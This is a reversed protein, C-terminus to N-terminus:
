PADAQDRADLDPSQRTVAVVAAHRVEVDPDTRALMMLKRSARRSGLRRLEAVATARVAPVDDDLASEIARSADPHKMRSLAEISARRVIPSAHRLGQAVDGIRRAPLGALAAILTARQAPEATLAVLARTASAADGGDHSAIAALAAIAANVVNQDADAAATWQLTSAADGGGRCGIASVAELRRWTEPARLLGELVPKAADSRTHGLARIAARAIDSDQSATLPQLTPVADPADLRGLVDIAALRVHGARDRELVARVAPAATPSRSVSLSRLAFYRVWPDADDLSGLLLPLADAQDVRALVAAAAARVPPTDHVLAHALTPVVAVHDFFPLHDVAARRVVESPDRTLELVRDACGPYGFYGAIKVASERVVTNPDDLLTAIRAPMDKHGISNLAAIAAQRM